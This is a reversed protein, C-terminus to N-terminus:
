ACGYTSEGTLLEEEGARPAPVPGDGKPQHWSISLHLRPSGIKSVAPYFVQGNHWERPSTLGLTQQGTDGGRGAPYWHAGTAIGAWTAVEGAGEGFSRRGWSLDKVNRANVSGARRSHGLAVEIKAM